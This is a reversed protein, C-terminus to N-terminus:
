IQSEISFRDVYDNKHCIQLKIQSKVKFSKLNSSKSIQSFSKLENRPLHSIQTFSEIQSKGHCTCAPASYLLSNVKTTWGSRLV